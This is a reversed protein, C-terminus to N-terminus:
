DPIYFSGEGAPAKPAGNAALEGVPQANEAAPQPDGMAQERGFKFLERITADDLVKVLFENAQTETAPKLTMVRDIILQHYALQKVQEKVKQSVHISLLRTNESALQDRQTVIARVGLIADQDRNMGQEGLLSKIQRMDAVDAAQNDLQEQMKRAQNRLTEAATIANATGEFQTSESLLDPNVVTTKAAPAGGNPLNQSMKTGRTEQNVASNTPLNAPANESSLKPIAATMPVGVRAPDALDITILELDTVEDGDMVAWASISTGVRANTAKALRYYERSENTLPMHKGWAIGQNDLIAVLWRVAPPGYKTSMEYDTLHGWMGEPRYSNVQEVLQKVSRETYKRNNRSVVGVEGIPLTVFFQGELEEKNIDGPLPIDPYAGRFETVFTLQVRQRADSGLEGLSEQVYMGPRNPIAFLEGVRTIAMEQAGLGFISPDFPGKHPLQKGLIQELAKRVPLVQIAPDSKDYNTLEIAQNCQEKLKGERRALKFVTEKDDVHLIMRDFTLTGLETLNILPATEADKALKGCTIHPIYESFKSGTGEIDMWYMMNKVSYAINTLDGNNTLLVYSRPEDQFIATGSVEIDINQRIAAIWTLEDKMDQLQNDGLNEVNGLYDLTIHLKGEETKQDLTGDKVLDSLKKATETTPYLGVWINKAM